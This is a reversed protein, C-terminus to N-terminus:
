GPSRAGRGSMDLDFDEAVALAGADRRGTSRGAAGEGGRDPDRQRPRRAAEGRRQAGTPAQGRRGAAAEAEVRAGEARSGPRAAQARRPRGRARQHPPQPDAASGRCSQRSGFRCRRGPASGRVNGAAGARYPTPHAAAAAPGRARRLPARSGQRDGRRRRHKTLGLRGGEEVSKTLRFPVTDRDEVGVPRPAASRVAAPANCPPGSSPTAAVIDTVKSSIAPTNLLNAPSLFSLAETHVVPFTGGFQLNPIDPAPITEFSPLEYASRALGSAEGVLGDSPNYYSFPIADVDVGTGAITTVPCSGISQEENWRELYSHTLQEIATPGIQGYVLRVIDLLAECLDQDSRNSFDCRGNRLETGIDAIMSGTYPTGLTTLSRVDLGAFAADQTLAARSWNGGDSHAILQVREVGYDDRLFSLFTALAAGNADNDGYSDISDSAPPLPDGGPACPALPDSGPEVPATFVDYGAARLAAAPGAPNSWTAGERGECAPDPTTFSSASSYGSVLVIADPYAPPAAQADAAGFVFLAAGM